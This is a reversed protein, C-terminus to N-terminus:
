NNNLFTTLKQEQGRKILEQKIIQCVEYNEDKLAILMWNYLHFDIASETNFGCIGLQIIKM